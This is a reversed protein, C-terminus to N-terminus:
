KGMVSSFKWRLQLMLETEDDLDEDEYSMIQYNAQLQLGKHFHYNFGFLMLNEGNQIENGDEDDGDVDDDYMDYRAVLDLNVGAAEKLNYMALVSVVNENLDDVGDLNDMETTKGLYQALVTAGAMKFTANAAYASIAEHDPNEEGADDNPNKKSNMSYTGGIELMDVPKIRVNGLFAFENNVNGGAKKYGEGNYLGLNYSLKAAPVDGSLVVGYDTSSAFKWKDAPDKQITEYEWSYITGFYNKVLGVSLKSKPLPLINKFDLYAYKLKVGAGNADEDKDSSFFDLNFRGKINDTFKPEIRLYARELSFSMDPDADSGDDEMTFRNWIEMSYKTEVANVIYPVVLILLAFLIVKKSLTM